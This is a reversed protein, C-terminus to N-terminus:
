SIISHTQGLSPHHEKRWLYELFIDGEKKFETEKLILCKPSTSVPSLYYKILAWQEYSTM